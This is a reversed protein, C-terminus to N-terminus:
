MSITICHISFSWNLKLFEFFVGCVESWDQGLQGIEWQGCTELSQSLQLQPLSSCKYSQVVKSFIWSYSSFSLLRILTIFSAFNCLFLSRTLYSQCGLLISGFLSLQCPASTSYTHLCFFQRRWSDFGPGSPGFAFVWGRRRWWLGAVWLITM